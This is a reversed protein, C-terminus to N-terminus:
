QSTAGTVSRRLRFPDTQVVERIMSSLRYDDGRAREVVRDVACKDYYELGRGLAYTLLKEVLARAFKEKQSRLIGQLGQPGDFSRGDPLKGSPDIVFEGDFERWRGVGDFNEFAFGLPDMREHCSACGPDLRHKEMRQRLSGSLIAEPEESLEEVNPPPPPPPTGLLRDLVWLGRKVPSTRTPNSTITLFSAQTLLGGRPSERLDVRQFEGGEIGSLGYHRALRENVFTFQGDILDLASRDERVIAEFFALTEGAMAERLEDDFGPYVDPDPSVERLFRTQLWQGAFSEVFARSRPSALLRRAEADLVDPDALRGAAALSLLRADPPSSWLYYSLRSALSYADLSERQTGSAADSAARAADLDRGAEDLEARFLFRPSALMAELAFRVAGELSDGDDLALDGLQVLRDRESGDVPRRYVRLALDSLLESLVSDLDTGRRLVSRARVGEVLTSTFVPGDFRDGKSDEGSEGGREPDPDPDRSDHAAVWQLEFADLLLNRDGRLAPNPHNPENYNNTYAVGVRHSGPELQLWHDYEGIADSEAEVDVTAVRKGDVLFAMRVPDPGAQEGFASARLRYWGARDVSVDAVVDAERGVFLLGLERPAAHPVDLFTEAEWREHSRPATDGFAEALVSEAADLYKEMLLPPFSLVDGINDFGYGSDDAPFTEAPSSDVGLLDRITADYETRNLRRITVRGPDVPGDCDFRDLERRVWDVFEARQPETPQDRREPPMERESVMHLVKEWEKRHRTVDESSRFRELDLKAKARRGTHCDLCFSELFPQALSVFEDDPADDAPLATPAVLVGALCLSASLRRSM